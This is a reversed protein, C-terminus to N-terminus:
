NSRALHKVQRQSVAPALIIKPRQHVNRRHFLASPVIRNKIVQESSTDSPSGAGSLTLDLEVHAVAAYRVNSRQPLRSLRNSCHTRYKSVMTKTIRALKRVDSEPFGSTMVM